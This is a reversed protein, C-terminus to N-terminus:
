LFDMLVKLRDENNPKQDYAMKYLWDAAGTPVLMSAPHGKTRAELERIANAMSLTKPNKPAKIEGQAETGAKQRRIIDAAVAGGTGTAVGALLRPDAAGREVISIPKDDFMVYNYTGNDAFDKVKQQEAAYEQRLDPTDDAGGRNYGRWTDYDPLDPAQNRSMQDRYRLGPIGYKNLAESTFAPNDNAFGEYLSSPWGMNRAHKAGEGTFENDLAANLKELVYPSQESLPLDYDMLTDPDVDIETRYIHGKTRDYLQRVSSLDNMADEFSGGYKQAYLEVVGVDSAGQDLLDAIYEQKNTLGGQMRQYNAEMKQYTKATEPSDAFYLGHGYAQAGEGTGIKDMSFKDFQHPSGHWAEILRKGGKTIVGAESDESTAAAGLGLAAGGKRLYEALLAAKSM